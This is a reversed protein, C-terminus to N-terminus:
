TRMQRFRSRSWIFQSDHLRTLSEEWMAKLVFSESTIRTIVGFLFSSIRSHVSSQARASAFIRDLCYSFAIWNIKQSLSSLLNANNLSCGGDSIPFADGRTAKCSGRKKGAEKRERVYNELSIEFTVDIIWCCSLSSKINSIRKVCCPM